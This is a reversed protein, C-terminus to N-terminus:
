KGDVDTESATERRETTGMTRRGRRYGGRRGGRRRRLPAGEDEGRVPRLRARERGQRRRCPSPPPACRTRARTLLLVLRRRPGAARVETPEKSLRKAVMCTIVSPMLQHLYLEINHHPNLLLGRLMRMLASLLPLAKLNATM